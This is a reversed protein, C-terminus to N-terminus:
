AKVPTFNSPYQRHNKIVNRAEIEQSLVTFLNYDEIARRRAERFVGSRKTM